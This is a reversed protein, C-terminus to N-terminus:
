RQDLSNRHHQGKGGGQGGSSVDVSLRRLMKTLGSAREPQHRGRSAAHNVVVRYDIVPHGNHGEGVYRFTNATYDSFSLLCGSLIVRHPPIRISHVKGSYKLENEDEKSKKKIAIECRFNGADEQEGLYWIWMHWVGHKTRLIELFFHHQHGHLASSSSSSKFAAETTGLRPSSLRISSENAAARTAMAKWEWGDQDGRICGRTFARLSIPIADIHWCIEM